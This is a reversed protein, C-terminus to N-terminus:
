NLGCFCQPVHFIANGKVICTKNYMRLLNNNESPDEM